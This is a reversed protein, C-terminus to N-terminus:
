EWILIQKPAFIIKPLQKIWEINTMDFEEQSIIWNDNADQIPNFEMDPVFNVGRIQNAQEETLRYVERM